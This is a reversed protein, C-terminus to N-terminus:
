VIFRKIFHWPVSSSTSQWSVSFDFNSNHVVVINDLGVRWHGASQLEDSVLEGLHRIHVHDVELGILMIQPPIQSGGQEERASLLRELSVQFALLEHREAFEDSSAAIDLVM